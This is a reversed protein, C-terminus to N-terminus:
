EKGSCVTGDLSFSKTDIIEVPVLDGVNVNRDATFNVLKNERTYGALTDPNKKSPGDCLVEVTRHLYARNNEAAYIRLRDNLLNLRRKKVEESVAGEMVAAPTGERPSFAFAYALDFRCYDVLDLTARFDGETETPFGVILDTTFAMGPIREKMGDFLEKYHEVTYGRNMKKLIHNSGSQVPLHLSPMINPYNKMAEISSVTYDRPHSSYFRIRDIGTEACAILLETFGDEMGIDKGYANVNQGLLTVEKCGNKKLEEIEQIIYHIRRSREKGRTYPVICYTCFKDCGYMINVFAKHPFSRSVPMREVLNEQRNEVEVTKNHKMANELLAPFRHLNHTGFILDVHSYKELLRQVSQEEQTMCGCVAFIKEPDAEKLPRLNGIEGFVHDEAAKRIACTNFILLDAEEPNQTAEFQMEALMGGLTESDRVNAQCGYTHIYYKKGLGLRRRNESAKYHSIGFEQGARKRELNRDPLKFTEQKM